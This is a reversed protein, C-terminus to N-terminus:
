LGLEWGVVNLQLLSDISQLLHVLLHELDRIDPGLYRIRHRMLQGTKM